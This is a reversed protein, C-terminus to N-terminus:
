PWDRATVCLGFHTKASPYTFTTFPSRYVGYCLRRAFSSSRSGPRLSYNWWFRAFEGASIFRVNRPLRGTSPVHQGNITIHSYHEHGRRFTVQATIVNTSSMQHTTTTQQAIFDPLERRYTLAFECLKSVLVLRADGAPIASCYSTDIVPDGGKIAAPPTSLEPQAVALQAMCSPSLLVAGFLLIFRSGFPRM